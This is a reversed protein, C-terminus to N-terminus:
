GDIQLEDKRLQICVHQQSFHIVQCRLIPEDRIHIERDPKFLISVTQSKEGAYLVNKTPNLVFWKSYDLGESSVDFLFSCLSLQSYISSHIFPYSSIYTFLHISPNTSPYISKHTSLHIYPHFIALHIFPHIFVQISLYICTTVFSVYKSTLWKM